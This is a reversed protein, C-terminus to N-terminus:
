RTYHHYFQTQTNKVAAAVKQKLVLMSILKNSKLVFMEKNTLYEYNNYLVRIVQLNQM